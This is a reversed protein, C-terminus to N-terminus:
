RVLSLIEQDMASAFLEEASKPAYTPREKDERGFLFKLVAGDFGSLYYTNPHQGFTQFPSRVSRGYYGNPVDWLIIKFKEVFDRDFGAGILRDRFTKFASEVGSNNFEGDSLCIIGSPFDTLQVGDRKANIFVDAVAVFNTSTHGGVTINNIKELATGGKFQNMKATSAFEIYANGFKKSDLVQSFYLAMSMAVSYSTVDLGKAISNMSGSTDVVPMLGKEGDVIGSKALAVLGDFQKNITMAQYPMLNFKPNVGRNYGYPVHKALLEYPYGTFKAVPKSEIWKTYLSDLGNNTIFKSSVMQMLARGAISDFNISKLAGKSILQQWKHAGGSSKMKSYMEYTNGGEKKGGFLKSALFKAIITRAIKHQTKQKSVSLIQPLYKKVLDNTEPNELSAVIFNALFNWDLLKGDFGNSRVDIEMMTFIDKFSGVSVFLPLNNKFDDPHNVGLWLMRMIGENKLGQGVQVDETLQGDSLKVRRSVMRLYMILKISLVRDQSYLISMDKSVDDYSRVSRYSSASAFQDLFDSGTTSYAVGGNGTVTKASEKLGSAVFGSTATQNAKSVSGNGVQLIKKSDFM